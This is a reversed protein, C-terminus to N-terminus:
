MSSFINPLLQVFRSRPIVEGGLAERVQGGVEPRIHSFFSYFKCNNARLDKTASTLVELSFPMKEVDVLVIGAFDPDRSAGLLADENKVVIVEHGSQSAVEKIKTIFFLDKSILVTKM